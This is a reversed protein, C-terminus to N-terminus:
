SGDKKEMVLDCQGVEVMNEDEICSSVSPQVNVCTIRVATPSPMREPGIKQAVETKM